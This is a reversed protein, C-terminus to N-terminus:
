NVKTTQKQGREPETRFDNDGFRGDALFATDDPTPFSEDQMILTALKQHLRLSPEQSGPAM